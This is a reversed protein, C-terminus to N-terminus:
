LKKLISKINKKDNIVKKDNIIKKDDILHYKDDVEKPKEYDLRKISNGM